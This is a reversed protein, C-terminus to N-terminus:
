SWEWKTNLCSLVYKAVFDMLVANLCFGIIIFIVVSFICLFACVEVKFHNPVFWVRAYFLPFLMTYCLTPTILSVSLSLFLRWFFEQTALLSAHLCFTRWKTNVGDACVCMRVRVCLFVFFSSCQEHSSFLLSYTITLLNVFFFFYFLVRLAPFNM